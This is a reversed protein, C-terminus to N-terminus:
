STYAAEYLRIAHECLEARAGDCLPDERQAHWRELSRLVDVRGTALEGAALGRLEEGQEATLTVTGSAALHLVRLRAFDLASAEIASM